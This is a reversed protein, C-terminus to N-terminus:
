EGDKLAEVMNINKNKKALFINVVLNTLLVLNIVIIYSVIGISIIVEYESALAKMLANLLSYGIPLGIVIGLITLWLNQQILIKALKSNRFGVVKLTSLDRYKELYSIVGLNYLVIFGLLCAFTVLVTISTNMIEMFSDYSSMVDKKKTQLSLCTYNNIDVNDNTLLYSINILDNLSVDNKNKINKSYEYSIFISKNLISTVIQKIPLSYEYSSGYLKFKLVDGVKFNNEEAIRTSIYAGDNDLSVINYKQDIVRIYDHSNDYIDIVYNNNNIKITSEYVADAKLDNQVNKIDENNAQEDTSLKYDFNLVTNDLTNLMEKMTDKMGFSALLLITCCVVGFLAMLTRVKNRFIDRLNWKTVFSRNNIFKSKEILLRKTKKIDNGKLIDSTNCKLIKRTSLFSILSILVIVFVIILYSWWPFYLKWYPMDFCTGEMTVPNVIIGSILYGVPIALISGILSIFTGFFTYHFLIKKNRLGLAKLIGIQSKENTTIRSMTTIMTLVGIILFILPLLYGMTQGEEIESNLMNYSANEERSLLMSTTNLTANIKNELDNKELTTDILIQNYILSLNPIDKITENFLKPTIYFYGYTEYDPMIQNEDKVAYLYEPSQILSGIKFSLSLNFYTIKFEDGIKLNNNIAFKNSVYAELSSSDYKNGEVIYLSSINNNEMVNLSLTKDKKSDDVYTTNVVLRRTADVNDLNNIKNIDEDNFGNVNISYLWYDAYNTENFFREGDVKLSYWESNFGLFVGVSLFIIIILSIFQAKYKFLTRYLKKFLVM